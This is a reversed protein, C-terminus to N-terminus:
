EPPASQMMPAPEDYARPPAMRASAVAPEDATNPQNTTISPDGGTPKTGPNGGVLPNAFNANKSVAGATTDLNSEVKGGLASLAQLSGLAVLAIIVGFETSSLGRNDALLRALTLRNAPM